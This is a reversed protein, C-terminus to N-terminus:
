EYSVEFPDIERLQLAARAIILIHSDTLCQAGHGGLKPASHLLCAGLLLRHPWNYKYDVFPSGIERAEFFRLSFLAFFLEGRNKHQSTTDANVANKGQLASISCVELASPIINAMNQHQTRTKAFFAQPHPAIGVFYRLDYWVIASPSFTVQFGSRRKNRYGNWFDSIHFAYKRINPFRKRAPILFCPSHCLVAAAAFGCLPLAAGYFLGAATLIVRQKPCFGFFGTFLAFERDWLMKPCSLLLSM